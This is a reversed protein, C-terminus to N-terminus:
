GKRTEGRKLGCKEMPLATTLWGDKAVTVVYRRCDAPAGPVFSVRFVASAASQTQPWVIAADDATETLAKRIAVAANRYDADTLRQLLVRSLDPHLGVSEARIQYPDTSPPRKPLATPEAAPDPGPAAPAEAAPLAATTPAATKADDTVPLSSPASMAAPVRAAPVASAAPSDAPARMNDPKASATQLHPAGSSPVLLDITTTGLSHALSWARPWISPDAYTAGSAGLLMLLLLGRRRAKSRRRPAAFDLREDPEVALDIPPEYPHIESYEHQASFAAHPSASM